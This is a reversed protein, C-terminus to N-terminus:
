ENSFAREWPKHYKFKKRAEKLPMNNKIADIILNETEHIAKVRFLVVSIKEKPIVIVGNSDARIYDGPNIITQGVKVPNQISDLKTRGKGSKMYVGKTFIPYNSYKIEEIDRCMGDIITGQINKLQAVRTLIGGWVTCDTRGNNALIIVNNEPVNDIFDAAKNLSKEYITPERYKVTFAIGSINCNNSQPKISELGGNIDLSDLADSLTPTSYKKLIELINSM